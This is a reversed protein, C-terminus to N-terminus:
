RRGLLDNGPRASCYQYSLCTVGCIQHQGTGLSAVAATTSHYVWCMWSGPANLLVTCIGMRQCFPTIQISDAYRALSNGFTSGSFIFVQRVMDPCASDAASSPSLSPAGIWNSGPM